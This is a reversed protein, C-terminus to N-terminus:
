DMRTREIRLLIFSFVLFPFLKSDGKFRALGFYRLNFLFSPKDVANQLYVMMLNSVIVVTHEFLSLLFCHFRM